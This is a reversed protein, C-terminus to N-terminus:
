INSINELIKIKRGLRNFSDTEPNKINGCTLSCKIGVTDWKINIKKVSAVVQKKTEGYVQLDDIYINGTVYTFTVYRFAWTVDFDYYSLVNNDAIEINFVAYSPTGTEPYFSVTIATGVPAKIYFGIKEQKYYEVDRGFDYVSNSAATFLKIANGSDKGHTAALTTNTWGTTSDCDIAIFMSKKFDDEGLVRDGVTPIYKSLDINEIKMTLADGAQRKLSEYGWIL